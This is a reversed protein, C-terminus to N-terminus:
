EVFVKKSKLPSTGFPKSLGSNKQLTSLQASSLAGRSNLGPIKKADVTIAKSMANAMGKVIEVLSNLTQLTANGLLVPEKVGQSAAAVGAGLFILEADLSVEKVGDVNIYNSQLELYENSNLFIGEEKANFYLRGGNVVVQSGKYQNALPPAPNTGYSDTKDRVQSLPVLHDSTLYISSADENVDEIIPDYPNDAQKQGNSLITLPKGINTSDVFENKPSPFGTLRLSQGQRGDLIIDGPFPQMPNVDTLEEIDKGLDLEKDINDPFAAHNPHNWLNVITDYYTKVNLNSGDLENGPASILLVIENKLPLKKFDNRLPYAVPLITSDTEDVSKNLVRYKIAGIAESKGYKNWEEENSDDLIVDVVRVPIMFSGKSTTKGGSNDSTNVGAYLSYNYETSM